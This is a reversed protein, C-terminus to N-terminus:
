RLARIPADGSRNLQVQRCINLPSSLPAIERRSVELFARDAAM